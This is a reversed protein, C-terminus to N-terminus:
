VIAPESSMSAAITASPRVSPVNSRVPASALVFGHIKRPKTAAKATFAGSNGSCPQSGSAYRSDEASTAATREPTTEFAAPKPKRKM